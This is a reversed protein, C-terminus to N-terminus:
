PSTPPAPAAPRSEEGPHSLPTFGLLRLRAQGASAAPDGLLGHVVTAPWLIRWHSSDALRPALHRLAQQWHARAAAPDGTHAAIRGAVIRGFACEGVLSDNAKAGAETLLREGIEFAQRAIEGAGSRGLDASLEAELRLAFALWSQIQVDKPTARALESFKTRVEAVLPAAAASNGDARLLEAERLRSHLMARLWVRNQPDGKVLDDYLGRARLRQALSAPREGTIALINAHLGFADALRARWRANGPDAKVMAELQAVQRAFRTSAERLDGSREAITGLWSNADVVRFQLPLDQPREQVVHDLAELEALFGTRAADLRGEDLDLVALNHLGFALEEHWKSNAADLAVLAAGTDRYRTFWATM